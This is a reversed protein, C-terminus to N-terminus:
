HWVIAENVSLFQPQHVQQHFAGVFHQFPLPNTPHYGVLQYVQEAQTHTQYIDPLPMGQINFPISGQPPPLDPFGGRQYAFTELDWAPGTTELYPISM